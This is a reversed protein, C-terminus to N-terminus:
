LVQDSNSESGEEENIDRDDDIKKGKKNKWNDEEEVDDALFNSVKSKEWDLNFDSAYKLDDLYDSEMDDLDGNREARLGSVRMYWAPFRRATRMMDEAFWM